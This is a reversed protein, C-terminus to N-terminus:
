SENKIIDTITSVNSNPAHIVVFIYKSDVSMSCGMCLKGSTDTNTTM